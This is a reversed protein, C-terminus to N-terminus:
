LCNKMMRTANKGENFILDLISVQHVFPPYLQSYEPYASYDIWTVKINEQKFREEDLYNKAAPGSLYETAGTQKCISVLKETRTSEIQYQTSQTIKTNIGLFGNIIQIFRNNVESLYDFKTNLYTEEFLPAFTKFYPAKSYNLTITNWHKKGWNSDSILTENIKQLHKGKTHVPVTLWILGNPSKIL